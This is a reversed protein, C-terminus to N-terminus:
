NLTVDIIDGIILYVSVKASVEAYIQGWSGSNTNTGSLSAVKLVGDTYTKTPTVTKSASKATEKSVNCQGFGYCSNLNLIFNDVTLSTYDIDPVLTKVDFSNGTGLYYFTGSSFPTFTDAGREKWEPKGTETNYRIDLNGLSSSVM